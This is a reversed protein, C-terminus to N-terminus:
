TSSTSSLVSVASLHGGPGPGQCEAATATLSLNLATRRKGEASNALREAERELEDCQADTADEALQLRCRRLEAVSCEAPSLARRRQEGAECQADTADAPLRLTRRRAEAALVDALPAHHPLGVLERRHEMKACEAHTAWADLRLTQRRQEAQECEADTADEPLRLTKRRGEAERLEAFPAEHPLGVLERRREMKACEAHTAWADLRLTKRREEMTACEGDTTPDAVPDLGLTRRRAEAARLEAPSTGARPLGVQDCRREKEACASDTAWADLQLTARRQSAESQATKHLPLLEAPLEPSPCWRDFNPHRYLRQGDANAFIVFGDVWEGTLAYASSAGQLAPGDPLGSVSAPLRAKQQWAEAAQLEALSAGHPLGVAGERRREMEACERDTACAELQLKARRAEAKKCEKDTANAPLHLTRRRNAEEESPEVMEEEGEKPKKAM